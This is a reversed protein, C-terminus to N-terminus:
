PKEDVALLNRLLAPVRAFGIMDDIYLKWEREAMESM